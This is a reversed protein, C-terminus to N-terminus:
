KTEYVSKDRAIKQSLGRDLEQVQKLLTGSSDYTVTVTTNPTESLYKEIAENMPRELSAAAFVTIETSPPETGDQGGCATLSCALLLTFFVRFFKM